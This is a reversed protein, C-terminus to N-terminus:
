RLERTYVHQRPDLYSQLQCSHVFLHAEIIPIPTITVIFLEPYSHDNCRLAVYLIAVKMNICALFRAITVGLGQRM